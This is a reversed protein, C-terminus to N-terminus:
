WWPPPTALVELLPLPAVLPVPLLEEAEAADDAGGLAVLEPLLPCFMSIPIKM